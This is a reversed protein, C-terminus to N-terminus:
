ISRQLDPLESKTFPQYRLLSWTRLNDEGIEDNTLDRRPSTFEVKLLEEFFVLGSNLPADLSSLDLWIYFTAQPPIEVKLGMKELRALVHDRKVRFAKQLSIQNIM